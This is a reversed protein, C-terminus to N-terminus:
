CCDAAFGDAVALTDRLWAYPLDDALVATLPKFVKFQHRTGDASWFAVVTERPPCGPLTCAIEAVLITETPALTFRERTWQKIRTSAARREGSRRAPGFM